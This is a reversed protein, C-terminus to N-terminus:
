PPCSTLNASFLGSSPLLLGKCSEHDAALKRSLRSGIDGGQAVYGQEFGLDKMLKDIIRAADASNYDRDLPPGSSFAYGPLSPVVIHYPLTSPSYEEKFLEMMSFFEMVSGPWGHLFVIPIADKKESFLALFHVKIDEVTATFQPFSNIRAECARRHLDIGSGHSSAFIYKGTLTM